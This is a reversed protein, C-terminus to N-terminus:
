QIKSIKSSKGTVPELGCPAHPIEWTGVPVSLPFDRDRPNMEAQRVLFMEMEM